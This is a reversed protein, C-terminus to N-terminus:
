WKDQKGVVMPDFLLFNELSIGLGQILLLDIRVLYKECGRVVFRVSLERADRRVYIVFVYFRRFSRRDKVM